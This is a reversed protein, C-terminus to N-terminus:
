LKWRQLDPTEKGSARLTPALASAVSLLQRDALPSAMLQVGVPMGNDDFGAPLAIAPAGLFNGARCFHGISAHARDESDLPLAGHGTAPMLLVGGEGIAEAFREIAPKRRAIAQEYRARTTNGGALIRQRVVEWIPQTADRALEGYLQFGEYGLILSNEESLDGINLQESPTWFKLTWGANTLRQLAEDWVRQAGDSLSCPFSQPDLVHLAPLTGGTIAPLAQRLGESIDPAIQQTLPDASDSGTLIAVLAHADAVSRAIPGLVDLTPALPVVGAGSIIGSSPKFGVLHNLTAPARVSGGTDGGLAMPALGASVAIGCGSSSGGPARHTDADWPNWPTGRTPNQGALGFAFETMHTKGLIVMGADCMRQVAASTEASMSALRSLSGASAITGAVEISDKIAVPVGHLAGAPGGGGALLAADAADAQALAQEAFVQTFVNLEPARAIRELFHETVKRSSIEGSVILHAIQLANQFHLPTPTERM